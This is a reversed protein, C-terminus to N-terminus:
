SSATRTAPSSNATRRRTTSSPRCSMASPGNAFISATRAGNWCAAASWDAVKKSISATSCSRSQVAALRRTRPVHGLRHSGQRAGTRCAALRQDHRDHGDPPCLRAQAQRAQRHPGTRLCLCLAAPQAAAHRGPVRPRHPAHHRGPDPEPRHEQHLAERLVHGQRGQRREHRGHCALQSRHRDARRRHRQPRAARPLRSVHRLEPQRVERRRDEQGRQPASGQYRLRRRVARGETGPLLGPRLHRPQRHRHRGRRDARQPSGSRRSGLRFQSHDAAGDGRRGGVARDESVRASSTSNGKEVM